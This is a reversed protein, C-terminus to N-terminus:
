GSSFMCCQSINRNKMIWFFTDSIDAATLFETTLTQSINYSEEVGGGSNNRM